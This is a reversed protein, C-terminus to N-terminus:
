RKAAPSAALTVKTAEYAAELPALRRYVDTLQSKVVRIDRESETHRTESQAVYADFRDCMQGFRKAMDLMVGRSQRLEEVTLLQSKALASIADALAHDAM